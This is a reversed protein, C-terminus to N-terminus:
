KLANDVQPAIEDLIDQVPRECNYAVELQPRYLQKALSANEPPFNPVIGGAASGVLVDMSQPNVGEQATINEAGEANIPVFYGGQGLIAGAEPGSVYEMFEWAAAAEDDPTSEPIMWVYLSNENVHNENGPVPAIDYVFSDGVSNNIGTNTAYAGHLMALKGAAFLNEAADDQIMESWPPQVGEVCTLDAVYQIGEAAEPEVLTFTRGDESFVGTESGNNISWTNEYGEDTFVVAGYTGTAPDTMAKAAALFDDWKWNEDTYESPPLPVGAAEFMDKNYFIVRPGTGIALGTFTGDEQMGFEYLPQLWADTDVDELFPTLDKLVGETSFSTLFDDNIRFISPAAGAGLQTQMRADYDPGFPITPAVEITIDPNEAEFNAIVEEMPTDEYNSWDQITVTVQEGSAASEGGESEGAGGDGGSCATATLAIISGLAVKSYASKKNVSSM